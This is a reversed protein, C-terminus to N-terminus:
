NSTIRYKQHYFRQIKNETERKPIGCCQLLKLFEIRGEQFDPVEFELEYDEHNLYISHDLVILGHKYSTEARHTVLSGFYEIDSFSIGKDELIGSIAGLPLKGYQIAQNAEESTLWQNTELLGVAAPQKLTMEFSNQKNRIRLACGLQKLAFLPTDFYHNEQSFKDKEDLKFNRLLAEYEQKTLMNKFEIEITQSM